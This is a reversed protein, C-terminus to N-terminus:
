TAADHDIKKLLVDEHRPCFPCPHHQGSSQHDVVCYLTGFRIRALIDSPVRARM